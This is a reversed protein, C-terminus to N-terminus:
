PNFFHGRCRCKWGLPKYDSHRNGYSGARWDYFRTPLFKRAQSLQVRDHSPLTPVQVAKCPHCQNCKNYCSPPISGLRTKEEWLLGKEQGMMMWPPDSSCAAPSTLLLFLAIIITSIFCLSNMAM